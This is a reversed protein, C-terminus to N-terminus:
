ITPKGDSMEKFVDILIPLKDMEELYKRTLRMDMKRLFDKPDDANIVYKTGGKEKNKM